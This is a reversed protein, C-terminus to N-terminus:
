FSTADLLALAMGIRTALTGNERRVNSPTPKRQHGYARTARVHKLVNAIAWCRWAALPPAALVESPVARADPSGNLSRACAVCRQSIRNPYDACLHRALRRLFRSYSYFDIAHSSQDPHHLLTPLLTPGKCRIGSLAM